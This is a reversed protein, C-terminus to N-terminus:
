SPSSPCSDAAPLCCDVGPVAQQQTQPCPFQRSQRGGGASEWFSGGAPHPFAQHQLSLQGQDMAM